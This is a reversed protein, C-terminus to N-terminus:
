YSWLIRATGTTTNAVAKTTHLHAPVQRKLKAYIQFTNPNETIRRPVGYVLTRRQERPVMADNM